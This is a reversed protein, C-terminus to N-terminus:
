EVCACGHRLRGGRLGVIRHDGVHGPDFGFAFEEPREPTFDRVKELAGVNGEGTGEGM